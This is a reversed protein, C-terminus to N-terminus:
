QSDPERPHRHLVQRQRGRWSIVISEGL